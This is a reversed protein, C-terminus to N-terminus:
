ATAAPAAEEKKESITKIQSAVSAAPGLIQGVLRSAPALALSVVRGIAEERTPMKLALDFPVEQGDAVAMKVKVFKDHKKALAEVEKSLAAISTGGWAITTSGEWGANAAIGMETFVRRALSNKVRQLRIGKKRLGLRAQNDAIANLGVINVMVLDRVGEFTKKLTTIEMQKIIKSM